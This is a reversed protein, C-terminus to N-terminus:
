YITSGCQPPMLDAKMGLLLLNIFGIRVASAASPQVTTALVEASAAGVVKM